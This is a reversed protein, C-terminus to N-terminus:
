GHCRGGGHCAGGGHCGAGGGHCAAAAAHCGGDCGHCRRGGFAPVEAGSGLAMMLVVSYMSLVEQTSFLFVLGIKFCCRWRGSGDTTRVRLTETSPASAGAKAIASLADLM